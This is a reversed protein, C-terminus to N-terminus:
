NGFILSSAIINQFPKLNSLAIIGAGRIHKLAKGDYEVFRALSHTFGIVTKVDMSRLGNYQYLNTLSCEDKIFLDCFTVVDRLALNMGQASIPHLTQASNGMLVMRDLVRNKTVQLKLPFSHVNGSLKLKGFRKMFPIDSLKEILNNESMITKAEEDPVSWVLVFNKDHPLLVFAGKKDFREFAINEHPTSTIIEATIANKKYDFHEYTLEKVRVKGGEALIALEATLCNKGTADIYEITAFNRGPTVQSVTATHFKILSFKLAVQHLRKCIDPYKITSGLYPLKVDSALINSVGLGSHSIHVQNIKTSLEDPWANLESLMEISAFSLALVRGDNAKSNGDDIVNVGIGQKALYIACSLGVPGGGVITIQHHQM